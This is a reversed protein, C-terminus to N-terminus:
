SSFGDLFPDANNSAGGAPAGGGNQPNAKVAWANESLWAKVGDEVSMDKDAGKYILSEDDGVCLNETILKAMAKPAAANGKTLADVLASTKMADIRKNKEVEKEKTMDALQKTVQEVKRNLDTMAKAIEEPKKGSQAFSDLTSKLGKAKEMVDDGDELGLSELLEKVKVAAKDGNQRHTKAENNLRNTEAKIATIMEAGDDLKELKDFVEKLDM